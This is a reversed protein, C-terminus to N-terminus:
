LALLLVLSALGAAALCHRYIDLYDVRTNWGIVKRERRVASEMAPELESGTMSRIYRGGTEMAIMRLTSENLRTRVLGGGEDKLLDMKGSPDLVPITVLQDSGIGITYVHTKEARLLALQRPLESGQDDGDSLVLFVKHTPRRDKRALQRASALANGIDTGFRPEPDETMWDLYFFLNDMDRTLPSLMLSTGAFGILGVRDITDPKRSLFAKIETVARTFRSPRVDEARMSVSRDFILVLDDKEYEPVRVQLLIQPRTMAIVLMAVAAVASVLALVDRRWTSMRSLLRLHAARSTRQRFSHKAYVHVYWACIVLPVTLFWSAAEPQLFRM